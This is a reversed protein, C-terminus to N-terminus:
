RPFALRIGPLTRRAVALSVLLPKSPAVLM